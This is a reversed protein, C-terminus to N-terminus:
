LLVPSPSGGPPLDNREQGSRLARHRRAAVLDVVTGVIALVLGGAALRVGLGLQDLSHWPGGISFAGVAVAALVIGVMRMAARARGVTAEALMVFIGGIAPLYGFMGLWRPVGVRITGSLLLDFLEHM